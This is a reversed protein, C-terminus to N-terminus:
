TGLAPILIHDGCSLPLICCIRCKDQSVKLTAELAKIMSCPRDSQLVQVFVILPSKPVVMEVSPQRGSCRTHMHISTYRWAFNGVCELVGKVMICGCIEGIDGHKDSVQDLRVCYHHRPCFEDMSVTKQLKGSGQLAWPVANQSM